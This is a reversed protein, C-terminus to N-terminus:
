DRSHFQRQILIGLTSQLPLYDAPRLSSLRSASFPRVILRRSEFRDNLFVLNIILQRVVSVAVKLRRFAKLQRLYGEIGGGLSAM